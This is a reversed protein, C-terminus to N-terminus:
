ILIITSVEKINFWYNRLYIMLKPYSKQNWFESSEFDEIAKIMDAETRSRAIRRLKPILHGKRESCSNNEKNFWRELDQLRHFDCLFVQCDPFSVPLDQKM